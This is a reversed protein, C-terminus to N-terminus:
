IDCRSVQVWQTPVPSLLRRWPAGARIIAWRPVTTGGASGENSIHILCVNTSLISIHTLIMCDLSLARAEGTRLSRHGDGRHAGSVKSHHHVARLRYRLTVVADRTTTTYVITQLRTAGARSRTFGSAMCSTTSACRVVYAVRSLLMHSCRRSVSSVSM